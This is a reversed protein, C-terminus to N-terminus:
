SGHGTSTGSQPQDPEDMGIKQIQLSEVHRHESELIDVLGDRVSGGVAAGELHSPHGVTRACRVRRRAGGGRGSRAFSWAM